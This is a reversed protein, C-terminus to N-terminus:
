RAVWHLELDIAKQEVSMDVTWGAKLVALIVDSMAAWYGALMEDRPVAWNEASMEDTPREKRGAKM